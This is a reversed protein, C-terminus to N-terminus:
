INPFPVIPKLALMMLDECEKLQMYTELVKPNKQDGRIIRYVSRKDVGTLKSTKEVRSAVSSSRKKTYTMNKTM